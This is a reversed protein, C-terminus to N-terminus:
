PAYHRHYYYYYCYCYCCCCCYCCIACWTDSPMQTVLERTTTANYLRWDTLALSEDTSTPLPVRGDGDDM